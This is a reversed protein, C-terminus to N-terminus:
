ERAGRSLCETGRFDDVPEEEELSGECAHISFGSDEGGEEYKEKMSSDKGEEEKENSKKKM